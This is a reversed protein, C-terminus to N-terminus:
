CDTSLSTTPLVMLNSSIEPVVGRWVPVGRAEKSSEPKWSPVPLRRRAADAAVAVLADQIVVDREGGVARLSKGSCVACAQQGVPEGRVALAGSHLPCVDEVEEPHVAGHLVASLVAARSYM